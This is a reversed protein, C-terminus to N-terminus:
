APAVMVARMKTPSTANMKTFPTGYRVGDSNAHSYVESFTENIGASM